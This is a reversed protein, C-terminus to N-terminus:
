HFFSLRFYKLSKRATHFQWLQTSRRNNSFPHDLDHLRKKLKKLYTWIIWINSKNWDLRFNLRVLTCYVVRVNIMLEPFSTVFVFVYFLEKLVLFFYPACLVTANNLITLPLIQDFLKLWLSLSLKEEHYITFNWTTRSHDM